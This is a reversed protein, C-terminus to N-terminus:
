LMSGLEVLGGKEIGMEFCRLVRSACGIIAGHRNGIFKM